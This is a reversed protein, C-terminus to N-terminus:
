ARTAAMQRPPGSDIAKRRACADDLALEIARRLRTSAAQRGGLIRSLTAPACGAAMALTSHRIGLELLKIRVAIPWPRSAM